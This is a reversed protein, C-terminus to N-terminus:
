LEGKFALHQVSAFLANLQALSSRQANKIREVVGMRRAFEQQLPLPPIEMVASRLRSKSINPMSAASGSALKQIERRKTPYILLQHLYTPDISAEPALRLRFILDPLCLRPPTARVLACAAVLESTNKRAFLIDGVRVELEKDPMIEPPLAKNESPDYVCWTVAGLKLVGWEGAAVPRDLCTPSWGSEVNSLLESLPVRPWRKKNLVPDGFMDLFIATALEDVQALAARRKARLAEARDLVNSIRRQEAVPPLLVECERLFKFHRSYGAAPLRLQRLFHYLYRADNGKAPQLIKTGEAGMCFPFDIFKFARTHDGFVIVPLEAKCLHHPDDTFGAIFSQGQDVVPFAGEAHLHTTPVKPNGSTVDRITQEFAASEWGAPPQIKM